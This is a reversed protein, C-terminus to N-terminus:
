VNAGGDAPSYLRQELASIRDSFRGLIWGTVAMHAILIATLFGFLFSRKSRTRCQTVPSLKFESM